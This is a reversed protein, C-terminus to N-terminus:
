KININILFSSLWFFTSFSIGLYKQNLKGCWKIHSVIPWIGYFPYREMTQGCINGNLENFAKSM